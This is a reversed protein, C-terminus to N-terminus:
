FFFFCEEKFFLSMVLSYMQFVEKYIIKLDM